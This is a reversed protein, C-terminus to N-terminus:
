QWQGNVSQAACFILAQSVSQDLSVAKASDPSWSVSSIGAPSREPRVVSASVLARGDFAHGIPHAGQTSGM